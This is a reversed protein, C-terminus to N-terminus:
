KDLEYYRERKEKLTKDDDRQRYCYDCFSTEKVCERQELYIICSLNEQNLKM